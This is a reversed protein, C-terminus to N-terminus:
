MVYRARTRRIKASYLYYKQYLITDIIDRENYQSCDYEPM